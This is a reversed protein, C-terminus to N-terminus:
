FIGHATRLIGRELLQAGVEYKALGLPSIPQKGPVYSAPAHLWRIADKPNGFLALAAAYVRTVRVVRESELSNLRGHQELRRRLTSESGIVDKPLDLLDVFRKYQPGTIGRQVLLFLDADSRIQRKLLGGLVDMICRNPRAKKAM